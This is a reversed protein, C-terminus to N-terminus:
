GAVTPATRPVASTPVAPFLGSNFGAAGDEHCTPDLIERLAEAFASRDLQHDLQRLSLMSVDVLDGQLDSEQRQM